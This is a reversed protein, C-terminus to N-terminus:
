LKKGFSWQLPVAVVTQLGAGPWLHV